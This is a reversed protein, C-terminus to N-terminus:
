ITTFIGFTLFGIGSKMKIRAKPTIESLDIICVHRKSM